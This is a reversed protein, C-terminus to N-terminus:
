GAKPLETNFLPDALDFMRDIPDASWGNKAAIFKCHGHNVDAQGLIRRVKPSKLLDSLPVDRLNGIVWDEDPQGTPGIAWPSGLLVGKATLGFSSVVADCPNKGAHGDLARLACQLKIRPTGYKAELSRLHSIARAYQERNPQLAARWEGRGSPFLRMVLLREIGADHLAHFIRDLSQEDINQLTLPCEARTRVGVAAFRSAARLNGRAYASPRNPDSEDAEGDFTFNLEKILGGISAADHQHLGAGTATLTVRHRGLRRSIEELVRVNETPQLPDGGSIDFQADYGAVNEVVALKQEFTLELGLEQRLRLAQDFVSMTRDRKIRRENALGESRIVLEEGRVVVHVADVCCMSCDWGCLLTWNWIIDIEPESDDVPDLRHRLDRLEITKRRPMMVPTPTPTNM